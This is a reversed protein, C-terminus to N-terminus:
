LHKYVMDVKVYNIKGVYRNGIRQFHTYITKRTVDFYGHDPGSGKFQFIVPVSIVCSTGVCEVTASDKSVPDFMFSMASYIADPSCKLGSVKQLYEWWLYTHIDYTNVSITEIKADPEFLDATGSINYIPCETLAKVRAIFKNVLSVALVKLEAEHRYPNWNDPSETVQARVIGNFLLLLVAIILYKM